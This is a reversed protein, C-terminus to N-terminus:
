MQWKFQANGNYAELLVAVNRTTASKSSTCNEPLCRTHNTKHETEISKSHM